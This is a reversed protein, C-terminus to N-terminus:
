NSLLECKPYIKGSLYGLLMEINYCYIIGRIQLITVICNNAFFDMFICYQFDMTKWYPQLILIKHQLFITIWYQTWSIYRYLFNWSMNFIWSKGIHQCYQIQINNFYPQEINYGHFIDMHRCYLFKCFQGHIWLISFGHIKM